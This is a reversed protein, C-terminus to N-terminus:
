VNPGILKVSVYYKAVLKLNAHYNIFHLQM